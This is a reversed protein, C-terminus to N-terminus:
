APSEPPAEEEAPLGPVVIEAILRVNLVQMGQADLIVASKGIPSIAIFDPDPVNHTQGGRMVIKFPLFPRRHMAQRIDETTPM